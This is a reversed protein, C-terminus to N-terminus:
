DDVAARRLAEIEDDLQGDALLNYLPVRDKSRGRAVFIELQGGAQIVGNLVTFGQFVFLLADATGKYDGYALNTEIDPVFVSSMNKGKITLSKDAKRHIDGGFNESINGYYVVLSGIKTADKKDTARTEKTARSMELEPYSKTSRTCDLRTKAKTALREFKYYDTLISM